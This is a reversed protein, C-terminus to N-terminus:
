GKSTLNNVVILIYKYLGYVEQIGQIIQYRLIERNYLLRARVSRYHLFAFNIYFVDWLRFLLFEIHFFYRCLETSINKIKAQNM